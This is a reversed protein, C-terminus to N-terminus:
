TSCLTLRHSQLFTVIHAAILLYNSLFSQFCFFGVDGVKHIAIYRRMETTTIM